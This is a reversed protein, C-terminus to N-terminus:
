ERENLRTIIIKGKTGITKKVLEDDEFYFCYTEDNVVKNYIEILENPKLIAWAVACVHEQFYVNQSDIRDIKFSGYTMPEKFYLYKSKGKRKINSLYLIKRIISFRIRSIGSDKITTM